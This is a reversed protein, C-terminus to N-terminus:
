EKRVKMNRYTNGGKSEEKRRIKRVGNKGERGKM